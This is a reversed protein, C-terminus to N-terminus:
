GAGRTSLGKKQEVRHLVKGVRITDIDSAAQRVIEGNM